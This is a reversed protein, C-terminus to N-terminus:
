ADCEGYVARALRTFTTDARDSGCVYSREFVHEGYEEFVKSEWLHVAFNGDDFHYDNHEYLRPLGDAYDDPSWTPYYFARPGAVHLEDDFRHSEALARPVRVSHVAWEDDRFTAYTALWRHLFTANRPAVIVANAVGGPTPWRVRKTNRVAEWGMITRGDRLLPTFPRLALVDMDLYIGGERLLVEIRLVDAKHAFHMVERGHVSTVNRARRLRLYPRAREYWYGSPEHLHHLYIARPRLRNCAAKVALYQVFGFPKSGFDPSLGHIFHVINPTRRRARALTRNGAGAAAALEVEKTFDLVAYRRSPKSYDREDGFLLLLALLLLLGALAGLSLLLLRRRRRARPRRLASALLVM